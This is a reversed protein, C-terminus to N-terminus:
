SKCLYWYSACSQSACHRQLPGVLRLRITKGRDMVQAGICSNTITVKQLLEIWSRGTWKNQGPRFNFIGDQDAASVQVRESIRGDAYAQNVSIILSGLKQGGAWEVHRPPLSEGPFPNVVAILFVFVAIGGVASISWGSISGKLVIGGVLFLSLFASCIAVTWRALQRQFLTPEPVLWFMALLMILLAGGFVGSAVASGTQVTTGSENLRSRRVHM